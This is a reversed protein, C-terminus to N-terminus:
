CNSKEEKIIKEEEKEGREIAAVQSAMAKQALAALNFGPMSANQVRQHPQKNYVTRALATHVFPHYPSLWLLDARAVEIFSLSARVRSTCLTHMKVAQFTCVWFGFKTEAEQWLEQKM